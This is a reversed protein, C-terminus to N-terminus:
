EILRNCILVYATADNQQFCVDPHINNIIVANKMETYEIYIDTNVPNANGTETHDM